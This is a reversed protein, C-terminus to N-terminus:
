PASTLVGIQTVGWTWGRTRQRLELANPGTKLLPAELVFVDGANLGNNPGKSLFGIQTGNLYISIEDAYDIDYGTVQLYYTQTSDGTFIAALLTEHEGTGYNNGYAGPDVTDLTLTIVPPTGAPPSSLVALGTVGWKWGPTGQQFELTNQGAVVFPALLTFVDGANLGNNPGKSLFGIPIGNLRVSIEDDEDIDYGRVALYYSSTGDGVFAATLSSEHENTGYQHGYAGSDVVDVTLSVVAAGGPPTGLVVLNTVGWTWGPTRQRFEVTNQGALVLPLALTFTDGANLNNNPGKSLFGIPSGNFHVSIEDAYDIDFGTVQLYYTSVGDGPFTATLTTEHENSGYQHGYVGPDIEDLTLSVVPSGGVPPSSLVALNTVGWTWGPTRQRFELINQGAVAFPPVLTFTDGANLANNPGKSLFGIPSGNLHVSVEDNYDIDYGSAQLFYSSAGDGDFVATLVTEREETGYNFGYSGPDVVDVTLAVPPPGSPPASLVALDTVGWIWGKTRERFELTNPGAVVLPPELTFLDGENLGNNPGRSLFDVPTGNLLVSIEDDYDIDYGTVQLYYTSSGDGTFTAILYTYHQNTGFGNGYSGPDVEDVTLEVLPPVVTTTQTAVDNSNVPDIVFGSVSASTAFTGAITGTAVVTISASMGAGIDGLICTVDGGSESCAGESPAASQFALGTPLTQMLVVDSAPDPGLNSVLISYTVNDGVVVPDVADVISVALDATGDALLHLLASPAHFIGAGSDRDFGPEEIDLASSALLARLTAPTLTPDAELLLATLAAAHPAAASTGYFPAFGPTATSVGDAAAVDPKLRLEGGTSLFNGPTIPAGDEEFFIRRPGDSSFFEAPNSPGGEFEGGLATFVEVAAVAFAERAAAHGTIQGDTAQSLVGRHTNLHLYRPQAGPNRVIVLRTGTDDFFRSDILELPDDNGNQINTSAAWVASLTPDLLYLDYDNDSGGIPDSWQLTFLFPTDVIVTNSNNGGFDHVDRGSLAPPASTSALDGEWVGATGDNINGSNGAASFYFAGDAIVANVAQAVIDDQLAAEDPYFVDDVLIDCGADRLALINTAFTAKNDFATAFYLEAGPALDHIIELMATGESTGPNGSQGPLVTVAPLDGTAQLLSLYDVSDSLVCVKTGSGDVGFTNRADDAAHAIDGESTDLKNTIPPLAPRIFQVSTDAALAELSEIPLRARISRYRPHQRLVTGGLADIRALLAGSVDARIDVLTGGQSDIEIGTSLGPVARSVADGRRRSLELILQSDLRGRADSRAAKEAMLARIQQLATERIPERQVGQGSSERPLAVFVLAALLWASFFRCSAPRFRSPRFRFGDSRKMVSGKPRTDAASANTQSPQLHSDLVAPIPFDMTPGQRCRALVRGAFRFAGGRDVADFLNGAAAAHTLSGFWPTLGVASRQSVGEPGMWRTSYQEVWGIKNM